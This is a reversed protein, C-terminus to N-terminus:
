VNIFASANNLYPEQSRFEGPVEGRKNVWGDQRIM